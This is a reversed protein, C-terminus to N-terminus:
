RVLALDLSVAAGGGELALVVPGSVALAFATAIVANRAMGLDPAACCSEVVLWACRRKAGLRKRSWGKRQIVRSEV